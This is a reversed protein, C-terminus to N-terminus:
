RWQCAQFGQHLSTPLPLGLPGVQSAPQAAGAWGCLEVRWKRAAGQWGWVNGTGWLWSVFLGMCPQASAHAGNGWSGQQWLSLGSAVCPGHAALPTGWSVQGLKYGEGAFLGGRKFTEREKACCKVGAFHMPLPM